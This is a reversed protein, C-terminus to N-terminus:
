KGGATDIPEVVLRGEISMRTLAAVLSNADSPSYGNARPEPLSVGYKSQVKGLAARFLQKRAELNKSTRAGKSLLSGYLNAGNPMAADLLAIQNANLEKIPPYPDAAHRLGWVLNQIEGRKEVHQASFDMMAQYLVVAEKSLLKQIPVLQLKEGSSPAAVSRDM